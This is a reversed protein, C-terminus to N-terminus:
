KALEKKKQRRKRSNPWKNINIVEQEKQIILAHLTGCGLSLTSDECIHIEARFTSFIIEFENAKKKQQYLKLLHASWMGAVLIKHFM